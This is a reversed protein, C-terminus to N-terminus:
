ASLYNLEWPAQKNKTEIAKVVKKGNSKLQKVLKLNYENLKEDKASFVVYSVGSPIHIAADPNDALYDLLKTTLVSNKSLITKYSM